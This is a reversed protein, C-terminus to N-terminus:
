WKALKVISYLIGSFVGISIGIFNVLSYIYDGGVVMGIYTIFVNKMTGIVTTTLASNVRTCLMTSYNLLFGMLCSSLFYLLFIPNNWQTYNYAISYDGNYLMLVTLPPIM